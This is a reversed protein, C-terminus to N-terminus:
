LRLGGDGVRVPSTRANQGRIETFATNSTFSDAYLIEGKQEISTPVESWVRDGRQDYFLEETRITRTGGEDDSPVVLVVRGRAIMLGSRQDYEGSRSTLEGPQEDENYFTLKVGHLTTVPSGPESFATDAYLDAKLTGEETLKLNMGFTAQQHELELAAPATPDGRGGCAAAAAALALVGLLRLAGSV